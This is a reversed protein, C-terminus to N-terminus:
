HNDNDIRLISGPNFIVDKILDEDELIETFECSSQHDIQGGDEIVEINDIDLSLTDSIVKKVRDMYERGRKFTVYREDYKLDEGELEEVYQLCQTLLYQAKTYADDYSEIGWGFTENLTIVLKGSENLSLGTTSIIDMNSNISISHTSSSNTEFVSSRTKLKIM